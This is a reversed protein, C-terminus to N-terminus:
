LIYRDMRQLKLGCFNEYFWFKTLIYGSYYKNWKAVYLNEFNDDMIFIEEADNPNIFYTDYSIDINEYLSPFMVSKLSFLKCKYFGPQTIQM